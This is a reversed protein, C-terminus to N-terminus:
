PRERRRLGVSLSDRIAAMRAPSRAIPNLTATARIETTEGDVLRVSYERCRWRLLWDRGCHARLTLVTEDTQRPETTMIVMGADRVASVTAQRIAPPVDIYSARVRVRADGPLDPRVVVRLQPPPVCASLALLAGSLMAARTSM